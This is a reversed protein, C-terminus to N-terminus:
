RAGAAMRKEIFDDPVTGFLFFQNLRSMAVVLQERATSQAAYAQELQRTADSENAGAVRLFVSLSQDLRQKCAKLDERLRDEIEHNTLMQPEEFCRFSIGVQSYRFLRLAPIFYAPVVMLEFSVM